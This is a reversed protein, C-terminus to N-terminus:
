RRLSRLASRVAVSLCQALIVYGTIAVTAFAGLMTHVVPYFLMGPVLSCAFLLILAGILAMFPMEYVSLLLLGPAVIVLAAPDFPRFGLDHVEQLFSPNPRTATALVRVIERPKDIVYCHLAERTDTRWVHWYFDEATEEYTFWNFESHGGLAGLINADTWEETLRPDNSAQLYTRVASVIVNDNVGLQYKDRLHGNWSLGMLANHWVTRAGMDHFYRPNYALHQYTKLLGLGLVLCLAPWGAQFAMRRRATVDGGAASRVRWTWNAVGLLLVFAIEWTVTSRAHYCALLIAAQGAVTARRGPTWRDGAFPTLALHLAAVISLLEILRPEFLSGPEFISLTLNGLPIVLTCVYLAGLMLILLAAALSHRGLDALFLMVSVGLVVFYFDYLSHAWPGFLAFAAIVYDGMGRDDAVWYYTSDDVPRTRSVAQVITADLDPAGVQFPIAISSFATYDHPRGHYLVSIAMPIAHFRLRNTVPRDIGAHQGRVYIAVLSVIAWVWVLVTQWTRSSKQSM